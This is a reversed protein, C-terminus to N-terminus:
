RYKEYKGTFFTQFFTMHWINKFIQSHVCVKPRYKTMGSCPQFDPWCYFLLRTKRDSNRNFNGNLSLRYYQLIFGKSHIIDLMFDGAGSHSFVKNGSWRLTGRTGWRCLPWGQEQRLRQSVLLRLWLHFNSASTPQPPGSDHHHEWEHVGCLPKRCGEGEPSFCEWHERLTWGSEGNVVFCCM